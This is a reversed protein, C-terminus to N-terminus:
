QEHGVGPFRALMPPRPAGGRRKAALRAELDSQIKLLERFPIRKVARGYISFEEQDATLRGTVKARIVALAKEEWPQADGAAATAPNASVVVTGSGLDYVEGAKSVREIWQYTGAVLAGTTAASFTVTYDPGTAVGAVNTTSPGLLYVTLAWGQDARYDSTSRTYRVTSGAVFQDPIACTTM